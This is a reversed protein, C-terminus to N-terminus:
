LRKFKSVERAQGPVVQVRSTVCSNVERHDVQM